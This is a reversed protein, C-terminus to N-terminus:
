STISHEYFVLVEREIFSVGQPGKEITNTCKLRWLPSLREMFSLAAPGLCTWKLQIMCVDYTLTKKTLTGCYADTIKDGRCM